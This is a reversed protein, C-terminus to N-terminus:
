SIQYDALTRVVVPMAKLRNMLQDLPSNIVVPSFHPRADRVNYAHVREATLQAEIEIAAYKNFAAKRAHPPYSSATRVVRDYTDTFLINYASVLDTLPVSAIIAGSVLM